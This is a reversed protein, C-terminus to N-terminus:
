HDINNIKEHKLPSMDKKETIVPLIYNWLELFTRIKPIVSQAKFYIFLQSSFPDNTQGEARHKILNLAKQEWKKSLLGMLM